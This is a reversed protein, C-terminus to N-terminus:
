NFRVAPMAYDKRHSLLESVADHLQSRERRM